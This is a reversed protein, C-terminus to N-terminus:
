GIDQGCKRCVRVKRGDENTRYGVRTRAECQPCVLMVNSLHIPAEFEIIGPQVQGRGAQVPRQHKKVINVREIVVRDKKPIVRLVEGRTGKDKGAIVEVTDGKKIRQM